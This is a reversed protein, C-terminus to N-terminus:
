ESAALAKLYATRQETWEFQCSLVNRAFQTTPSGTAKAECESDRRKVWELQEVNLRHTADTGRAAEVSAFAVKLQQEMTAEAEEFRTEALCLMFPRADNEPPSSCAAYGMEFPIEDPMRATEPLEAAQLLLLPLLSQM